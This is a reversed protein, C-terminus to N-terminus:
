RRAITVSDSLLTARWECAVRALTSSVAGAIPRRQLQPDLVVPDAEIRGADHLEPVLAQRVRAFPRGLDAAGDREVALGPRAGPDDHPDRVHRLGSDEESARGQRQQDDVVVLDDALAEGGQQTAPGLEM